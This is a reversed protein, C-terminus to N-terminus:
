AVAHEPAVHADHVQRRPTRRELERAPREGPQLRQRGFTILRLDVERDGVFPGHRLREDDYRRHAAVPRLALGNTASVRTLAVFPSANLGTAACRRYSSSRKRWPGKTPSRSTSRRRM